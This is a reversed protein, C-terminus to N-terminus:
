IHILSLDEVTGKFLYSQHSIYTFNELLSEEKLASLEVGGVTVSGQGRDKPEVDNMLKDGIWLEGSTIDELGAIM